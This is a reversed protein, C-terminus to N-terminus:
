IDNLGCWLKLLYVPFLSAKDFSNYPAHQQSCTHFTYGKVGGMSGGCARVVPMFSHTVFSRFLTLLLITFPMHICRTPFDIPLSPTFHLGPEEDNDGDDYTGNGIFDRTRTALAIYVRAISSPLNKLPRTYYIIM